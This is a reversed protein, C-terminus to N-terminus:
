SKESRRLVRFTSAKVVHEPRTQTKLSYVCEPLEGYAASGMAAKIENEIDRREEELKKQEKLIEERAADLDIFKDALMVREGDDTPFYEALAATTAQSGDVPPPTKDQICKWFEACRRELEAIFKDNRRVAYVRFDDGMILAALYAACHGTCAMQHQLQVQYYLPIGDSDGYRDAPVDGWEHAKWRVFKCELIARYGYDDIVRDLTAFMYGNEHWHIAYKGPNRVRLNTTNQFEKAIAQEHMKGWHVCAVADLEDNMKLPSTKEAWLSYPSGWNTCGFLAASESAGIGKHRSKLWAAKNACRKIM